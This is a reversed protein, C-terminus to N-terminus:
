PAGEGTSDVLTASASGTVTLQEIGLLGLFATPATDTVTVEVHTRDGSVTVSGTAGVTALYAEAARVAVARDVRDHQGTVAAPLDLAQGGARAAEAAVADARQTARLKAGGDAVLGVLVLLGLMSIAVFVSVSGRDSDAVLAQLRANM